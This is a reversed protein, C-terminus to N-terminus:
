DDDGVASPSETGDLNIYFLRELGAKSTFMGLGDHSVNPIFNVTHTSPFGGELQDLHAIFNRGRSLHTLGQAKAECRMDGPSSDLLGFLYSVARKRYRDIVSSINNSTDLSKSIFDSLYRQSYIALGFKWNNYTEPCDQVSRPRWDSLYAFSGPNAVVFHVSVSRSPVAGILAYRQAMQAGLSHGAIIITNMRPFRSRDSFFGVVADLAEFSSVPPATFNTKDDDDYISNPFISDAGEAWDARNWVLANSTPNGEEDVPFCGSDEQNLFLPAMIVVEDARLRPRGGEGGGVGGTRISSSNSQTERRATANLLAVYGQDWYGWADRGLGHLMVVARQVKQPDYGTTIYNYLQFDTKQLLRQRSPSLGDRPIVESPLTFTFNTDLTRNADTEPLWDWCSGSGLLLLGSWFL